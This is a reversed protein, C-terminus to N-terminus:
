RNKKEVDHSEIAKIAMDLAERKVDTMKSWKQMRRLKDIAMGIDLCVLFIIFNLM